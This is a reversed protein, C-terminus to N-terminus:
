NGPLALRYYMNGAAPITIQSFNNTLIVANTVNVWNSTTLDANEQLTFGPTGGPWSILVNGADPEIAATPMSAFSFNSITQVSTSGGDAGTFGVWAANTGLLQTLDGVMLNTTFSTNAVADTFTLAIWGNAYNMTVNIPDGGAVNVTGPAHYNGNAGSAGTLGNTLVTYGV